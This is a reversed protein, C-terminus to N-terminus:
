PRREIPLKFNLFYSISPAFPSFATLLQVLDASAFGLDAQLDHANSIAPLVKAREELLRLIEEHITREIDQSTLKDNFM